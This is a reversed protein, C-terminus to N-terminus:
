KAICSCKGDGFLTRGISFGPHFRKSVFGCEDLSEMEMVFNCIQYNSKFDSTIRFLSARRMSRDSEFHNGRKSDVASVSDFLADFHSSSSSFLFSTTSRPSSSAPRPCRQDFVCSLFGLYGCFVQTTSADPDVYRRKRGLSRLSYVRGKPCVGAVKYYVAEDDVPQDPTTQTLEQRRMQLKVDEQGNELRGKYVRRFGGEGLLCEQQFNETAAALERFTFTQAAINKNAVDDKKNKADYGGKHGLRSLNDDRSDSSVLSFSMLVCLAFMIVHQAQSLTSPKPDSSPLRRPSRIHRPLAAFLSSPKPHPSPVRPPSRLSWDGASPSPLGSPRTAAEIAAVVSKSSLSIIKQVSCGQLSKTAPDLNLINFLRKPRM